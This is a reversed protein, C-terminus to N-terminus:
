DTGFFDRDHFLSADVDLAVARLVDIFKSVLDEIIHQRDTVVRFLATRKVRSVSVTEMLAEFIRRGHLARFFLPQCSKSPDTVLDPSIEHIERGLLWLSTIHISM